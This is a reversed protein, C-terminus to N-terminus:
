GDDEVVTGTTSVPPVSDAVTRLKVLLYGGFNEKNPGPPAMMTFQYDDVIVQTSTNQALDQLIVTDGRQCMQRVQQLRTLSWTDNGMKNGSKDEESNFCLFQHNLMRQRLTGPLAKIQWSDVQGGITANTANRRLTFRLSEYNRPGTPDPTAIDSTGPDLSPGYTIYNVVGGTDSIVSVTVDGELPTPTKISFYKFLKPEITNFRCRGTDLYGSDLLETAHELYVHTLASTHTAQVTRGDSTVTVDDISLTNGPFYTWTSYANFQAQANVDTVLNALSVCMLGTYTDHQPPGITAVYANTGYFAIRGFGGSGVPVTLLPPGYAVGTGTFTGVRIGTQTTIVLYTAVYAGLNNIKEGQPMVAVLQLGNVVGASDVTSKYIYGQVGSNAAVYVGDPGDAIDVITQEQPVKANPAGPLPTAAAAYPDLMYLSNARGLALLGKAKSLPGAYDVTDPMTYIRTAVPPSGEVVRYIGHTAASGPATYFVYSYSVKTGSSSDDIQPMGKTIKGGAAITAAGRSTLSGSNVSYSFIDRGKAQWLDNGTGGNYAALFAPSSLTNLDAVQVDVLRHLLQIVDADTFPDIGVSKNYRVNLSQGQTDPDQYIVGAGGVWSSQSRLWWQNLSYEGPDKYSDFQQKRQPVSTEVDPRSDTTGSLFPVGGLAYDYTYDSPTYLGSSALSRGSVPFPIRRLLSHIVSM